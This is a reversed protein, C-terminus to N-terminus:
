SREGLRTRSILIKRLGIRALCGELRLSSRAWAGAVLWLFRRERERVGFLLLSRLELLPRRLVAPLRERERLRRLLSVEDLALACAVRLRRDGAFDLTNAEASSTLAPFASDEANAVDFPNEPAGAFISALSAEASAM